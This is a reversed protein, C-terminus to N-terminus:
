CRRSTGAKVSDMPLRCAGSTRTHCMSFSRDRFRRRIGRAPHWPDACSKLSNSSDASISWELHRVLKQPPPPSVQALRLLRKVKACAAEAGRRDLASRLMEAITRNLTANRLSSM